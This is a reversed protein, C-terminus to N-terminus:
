GEEHTKCYRSRLWLFRKPDGRHSGVCCKCPKGKSTIASCIVIESASFERYEPVTLGHQKAMWATPNDLIDPVDEAGVKWGGLYIFEFGERGLTGLVANIAAKGIKM